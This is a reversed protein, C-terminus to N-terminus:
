LAPSFYSALPRSHNSTSYCSRDSNLWESNARHSREWTGRLPTSIGTNLWAITGQLSWGACRARNVWRTETGATRESVVCGIRRLLPTLKRLAICHRWESCRYRCAEVHGMIHLYPTLWLVTLTAVGGSSSCAVTTPLICLIPPRVHLKSSLCM